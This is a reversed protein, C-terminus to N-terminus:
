TSITEPLRARLEYIFGKRRLVIAGRRSLDDITHFLESWTLEPLEAAVQEITLSGARAVLGLVLAEKHPATYPM